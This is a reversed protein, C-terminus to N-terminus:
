STELMVFQDQPPIEAWAELEKALQDTRSHAFPRVGIDEVESLLEYTKKTLMQEVSSAGSPLVVFLAPPTSRSTLKHAALVHRLSANVHKDITAINAYCASVINGFSKGNDLGVNLKKTGVTITRNQVFVSSLAASGITHRMLRYAWDDDTPTDRPTPEAWIAGAHRKLLVSLEVQVNHTAFYGCPFIRIHPTGSDAKSINKGFSNLIANESGSLLEKTEGGSIADGYLTSLKSLTPLWKIYPKDDNRIAAAVGVVFEQQSGLDPRFLLTAWEGVYLPEPAQKARTLLQQVNM